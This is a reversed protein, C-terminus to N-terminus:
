HRPFTSGQLRSAVSLRHHTQRPVALVPVHQRRRARVRRHLQPVHRRLVAHQRQVVVLVLDGHHVEVGDLGVDEEGGGVVADAGDGVAARGGVAGPDADGGLRLAGGPVEGRGVAEEDGGLAALGEAEVHPLGGRREELLLEM